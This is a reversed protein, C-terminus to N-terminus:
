QSHMVLGLHKLLFGYDKGYRAIEAESDSSLVVNLLLGDIGIKTVRDVYTKQKRRYVFRQTKAPCGKELIELQPEAMIQASPDSQLFDREDNKAAQEFSGDLRQVNIYM